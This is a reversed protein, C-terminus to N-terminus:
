RQGVGDYFAGILVDKRSKAALAYATAQLEEANTTFAQSQQKKKKLDMIVRHQTLKGGLGGMMLVRVEQWTWTSREKFPTQLYWLKKNRRYSM